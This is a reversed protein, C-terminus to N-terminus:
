RYVERRHAVREVIVLREKQNLRYVVRYSGVRVRYLDRSGQLKISDRSLPADALGDIAAKVREQVDSSLAGIEGLASNRIELRFPTTQGRGM